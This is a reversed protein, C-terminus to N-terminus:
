SSPRSRPEKYSFSQILIVSKSIYCVVDYENAILYSVYTNISTHNPLSFGISFCALYLSFLLLSGLTNFLLNSNNRVYIAYILLM